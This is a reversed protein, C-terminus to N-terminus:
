LSPVKDAWITPSVTVKIYRKEYIFLMNNKLGLFSIRNFQLRSREGCPAACAYVCREQRM